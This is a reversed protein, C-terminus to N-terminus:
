RDRKSFSILSLCFGVEADQPLAESAPVCVQGLFLLLILPILPPPFRVLIVRVLSYNLVLHNRPFVPHMERFPLLKQLILDDHLHYRPHLLADMGRINWHLFNPVMMHVRQFEGEHHQNFRQNPTSNRPLVGGNIQFFLRENHDRRLELRGPQKELSSQLSEHLQFLGPRSRQEPERRLKRHRARLGLKGRLM